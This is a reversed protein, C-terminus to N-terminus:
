LDIPLDEKIKISNIEQIHGGDKGRIKISIEVKSTVQFVVHM